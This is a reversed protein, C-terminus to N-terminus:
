KESRNSKQSGVSINSRIGAQDAPRRGSHKSGHYSRHGIQASTGKEDQEESTNIMSGSFNSEAEEVYVFAQNGFEPVAHLAQGWYEGEILVKFWFTCVLVFLILM